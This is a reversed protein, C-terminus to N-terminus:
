TGIKLKTYKKKTFIKEQTFKKKEFKNKFRTLLQIFTNNSKETKFITNPNAKYITNPDM